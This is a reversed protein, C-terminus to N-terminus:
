MGASGRIKKILGTIRKRAALERVHLRTQLENETLHLFSFGDVELVAFHTLNILLLTSSCVVAVM